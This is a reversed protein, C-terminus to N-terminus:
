SFQERLSAPLASFIIAAGQRDQIGAGVGSGQAQGRIRGNQGNEEMTDMLDM